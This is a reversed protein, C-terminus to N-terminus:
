GLRDTYSLVRHFLDTAHRLDAGVSDLTEADRRVADTDHGLDSVVQACCRAADAVPAPELTWMSEFVREMDIVAVTQQAQARPVALLTTAVLALILVSARAIPHALM